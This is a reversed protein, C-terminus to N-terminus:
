QSVYTGDKCGDVQRTAPYSGVIWTSWVLLNGWGTSPLVTSVGVPGSFSCYSSPCIEQALHSCPTLSSGPPTARKWQALRRIVEFVSVTVSEAAGARKGGKTLGLSVIASRNREDITVDRNRIGLLEGTRLMSYFGLLLSLAMAHEKHFVFYGVLSLVM